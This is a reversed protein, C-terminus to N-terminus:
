GVRRGAAPTAPGGGGAARGAWGRRGLDPRGPGGGGAAGGGAAGGGTEAVGPELAAAGDGDLGLRRGLADHVAREDSARGALADSARAPGPAFESPRVRVGRRDVLRPDLSLRYAHDKVPLNFTIERAWGMTRAAVRVGLSELEAPEGFPDPHWVHAEPRYGSELRLRAASSGVRGLLVLAGGGERAVRSLRVSEREAAASVGAVVVLAFGGSRLLEEAASLASGEDAPRVLLVGRPWFEGTATGAADLWVAREGRGVAAACASRLVAAAGGGARWTSLCGRPLGGNPLAGDLEAVGTAVTAALGQALPMADPFREALTQRLANVSTTM